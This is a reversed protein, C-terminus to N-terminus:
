AALNTFVSADKKPIIEHNYYPLHRQGEVPGAPDLSMIQKFHDGGANEKSSDILVSQHIVTHNHGMAVTLMKDAGEGALSVNYSNRIAFVGKKSGPSDEAADPLPVYDLRIGNKSFVHWGGPSKQVDDFDLKGSYFDEPANHPGSAIKFLNTYTFDRVYKGIKGLQEKTADPIIGAVANKLREGFNISVAKASDEIPKDAIFFTRNRFTSKPDIGAAKFSVVTGFKTEKGYADKFFQTLAQSMTKVDEQSLIPYFNGDAGKEFKIKDLTEKGNIVQELAKSAAQKQSVSVSDTQAEIPAFLKDFDDTKTTNEVQPETAQVSNAKALLPLTLAGAGLKGLFDRRSSTSEAQM